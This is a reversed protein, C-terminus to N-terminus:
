PLWEEVDEDTVLLGNIPEDVSFEVAADIYPTDLFRTVYPPPDPRLELHNPLGDMMYRRLFDAAGDVLSRDRGSCCVLCTLPRLAPLTSPGSLTNAAVLAQIQGAGAMSCAWTHSGPPCSCPSPHIGSRAAGEFMVYLPMMHTPTQAILNAVQTGTHNPHDLHGYVDSQPAQHIKAQVRLGLWRGRSRIWWEFDAGTVSENIGRQWARSSRPCVSTVVDLFDATAAREDYFLNPRMRDIRRGIFWSAAHVAACPCDVWPWIRPFRM